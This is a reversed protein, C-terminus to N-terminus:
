KPRPRNPPAPRAPKPLGEINFRPFAPSDIWRTLSFLEFGTLGLHSSRQLTMGTPSTATIETAANGLLPEIALLFRQTPANTAQFACKAAIDALQYLPRWQRLRAQTIEWDYYVLNDRNELKSFLEPPAPNTGSAFHFLGGVLYEQGREKV